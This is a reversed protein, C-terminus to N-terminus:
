WTGNCTTWSGKKPMLVLMFAVTHEARLELVPARIM